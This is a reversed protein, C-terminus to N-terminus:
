AASDVMVVALGPEEWDVEDIPQLDLELLEVMARNEARSVIGDRTLRTPKGLSTEVLYALGMMSGLSDPDPHVHSVFTVSSAKKLGALFRDSRRPPPEKGNAGVDACRRAILHTGGTSLGPLSRKKGASRAAAVSPYKGSPTAERPSQGRPRPRTRAERSSGPRYM